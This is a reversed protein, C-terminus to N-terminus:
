YHDLLLSVVSQTMFILKSNLLMMWPSFNHGPLDQLQQKIQFKKKTSPFFNIVKVIIFQLQAANIKKIFGTIIAM